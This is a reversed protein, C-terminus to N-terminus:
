NESMNKCYFEERGRQKNEVMNAFSGELGKIRSYFVGFAKVM